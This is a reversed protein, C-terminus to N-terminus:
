KVESWYFIITRYFRCKNFWETMEIPKLRANLVTNVIHPTLFAAKNGCLITCDQSLPYSNSATDWTQVKLLLLIFM